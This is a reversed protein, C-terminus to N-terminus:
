QKLYSIKINKINKINQPPFFLYIFSCIFQTLHQESHISYTPSLSIITIYDIYFYIKGIQCINKIKENNYDPSIKLLVPKGPAKEDRTKKVVTILETIESDKLKSTWTVNPCSINMVIFDVHPGILEVGIKYDEQFFM